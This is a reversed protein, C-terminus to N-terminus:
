EAVPTNMYIVGITPVRRDRQGEAAPPVGLAGALAILVFRRDM